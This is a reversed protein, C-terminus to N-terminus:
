NEYDSREFKSIYRKNTDESAMNHNQHFDNRATIQKSSQIRSTLLSILQRFQKSNKLQIRSFQILHDRLQMFLYKIRIERLKEKELFNKLLITFYLNPVKSNLLQYLKNLLQLKYLKIYSRVIDFIFPYCMKIFCIIIVIQILMSAGLYNKQECIQKTLALLISISCIQSSQLDLNNFKQNIFPQNFAALIQYMLLCLGLLSAKLVIETEFNTLIFILIAKKFLKIQEWYFGEMKYENLLYSIHRRIKIKDLRNQNIMLLIFILLPILIGIVILGPIIFYYMWLYHDQTGYIMSVDGHIYNTNSVEIRSVVSSFMKVLGAFNFIYLYLATNSLISLDYKQKVYLLYLSSGIFIINFQMVMLIIMTLIKLYINPIQQILSLYCDLDKSMFSSSDSTQEIFIFSFSFEINFTFIVSFIWFYNLLMKILISEHNQNLKFLIKNFRQGIILQAYLLNSSHISKLSMFISVFTWIGVIFVSILKSLEFQCKLCQQDWQNKFYKGFGKTDYVDCEECLAGIHGESCTYDGVQWGGHCFQPNKFCYEAYDSLKNPRWFGPLLNIMNSTIDFHKDNDFISCKTANYTVSYYGQNSQCIQCGGNIYFEGLQCKLSRATIIYLLNNRAEEIQCNIEIQLNKYTQENPDLNFQLLGFDFSNQQNDYFLTQVNGKRYLEQFTTTIIKNTVECTSNFQDFIIENRSNKYFLRIDKVFLKYTSNHLDFIQLTKIVQNSPIILDNTYIYNGQEIMRYRKLKLMNFNTNNLISPKSPNEMFNLYIALHTPIEVVNNGYEQAINFLLISSVFNDKNLNCDGKLYMGGGVRARNGIIISQIIIFSMSNSHIYLGGGFNEAYNKIIKCFKISIKVKQSFIAVGQSGNNYLFNSNEIQIKSAIETLQLFYLCGNRKILNYYCNLKQFKISKFDQTEIFVMGNYCQQCNNLYLTIDKFFLITQNSISNIYILSNDKNNIQQLSNVGLFLHDQQQNEFSQEYLTCGRILYINSFYNLSYNIDNKYISINRISLQKIKIISKIQLFQTITILNLFYFLQINEIKINNLQLQPINEFQFISNIVIGELIFGDINIICNQFFMLSNKSNGIDTVEQITLDKIRQFYQIWADHNQVIRVKKIIVKNNVAISSSFKVNLIQDKLSLCNLLNIGNLFISNLLKSPQITFISPGMRNFINTFLGNKVRLNLKSNSSEINFCGISKKIQKLNNNAYDIKINIFNIIGNAKTSIDFIFSEIALINKFTCNICSINSVLFQGVGGGNNKTQLVQFVFDNLSEQDLLGNFQFDYYNAWLQQSLLNLNNITFNIMMLIDSRIIMFSNSSNTLTNNEYFLNTIEIVSSSSMFYILNVITSISGSSYSHLFNEFYSINNLKITAKNYSEIILCSILDVLTSQILTNETFQLNMIEIYSNFYELRQQSPSIQIISEDINLIKSIQINTIYINTFGIILLLKTKQILQLCDQSLPIKKNKLSNKFIINSILLKNNESLYFIVFNNNDVILFNSIYIENSNIYFLQIMDDYTSYKSNQKIIFNTLQIQITNTQFTSFILIINSTQFENKIANLNDLYCIQHNKFLIQTVSLFQSFVFLNELIIIQKISIEFSITIIISTELYNFCIDLNNFQIRMQATSNIFYSNVLSSNRIKLNEGQLYGQQPQSNLFSIITSNKLYSQIIIFQQFSLLQDIQSFKFIASQIFTCNLISLSIIKIQGLLLQKQFNFISSNLFESNSITFNILTINGFVETAFLSNINQLTSNQITFNIIKLHVQNKSNNFLLYYDNQIVFGLNSIEIQDFENFQFPFTLIIELYKQSSLHFNVKQLTFIKQKLETKLNLPLIFFCLSEFVKFTFNITLEEIGIQNCYQTNIIDEYNRNFRSFDCSYQSIEFLFKNQCDSNFCYKILHQYSDLKIASDRYPYICKKTYIQNLDNVIFNPQTKQIEQDLRNICAQCLPPCYSCKTSQETIVSKKYYNLPCVKCFTQVQSVCLLCEPDCPEDIKPQPNLFQSYVNLKLQPVFQLVFSQIQNVQNQILQTEVDFEDNQYCNNNEIIYDKQCLVCKIQKEINITCYQCKLILNECNSIQPAISFDDNKSLTCQEKSQLNIFSRLCNEIEPKQLLCLGLTFDFIYDQECLACGQQVNQLWILVLESLNLLSCLDLNQASYEFCYICNKIECLKCQNKFSHYLPPLCILQDNSYNKEIYICNGDILTFGEDCKVCQFSEISIQCIQCSEIFCEYCILQDSQDLDIQQCFHRFYMEALLYEKFIGDSNLLNNNYPFSHTQHIPNLQVGDFYFQVNDVLQFAEELITNPKFIFTNQCIPNQYWNQPNSLCEYCTIQDEKIISPCQYCDGDFEFYGYLCNKSKQLIEEKILQLNSQKYDQCQNEIEITNYPCICVKHEPLYIRKSEQPCSLCDQNTPGDCDKCSLHCSLQIQDIFCNYFELNRVQVILYNPYIDLLNGYKVQFQCNHFQYVDYQVDYKNIEQQNYFTIEVKLKSKLLEVKLYHWLSIQNQILWKNKLLFPDDIFDISSDPFTYNYTTIEIENNLTAFHYFLQFPSLNQNQLQPNQLNASVKMLQYSFKGYSNKNEKIKIWGILIFSDCNQNESIFQHQQQNKFDQDNIKYKQNQNCLCHKFNQEFTEQLYHIFDFDLDLRQISVEQQWIPGPFYSFGENQYVELIQFNRVQLNGGFTLILNLDKLIQKIEKTIQLLVEQKKTVILHFKDLKPWVIVQFFYWINEYEFTDIVLDFRIQQNQNNIFQITKTIKKSEYDLCDFYVINLNQQELDMANHLHFCHSDFIGQYGVQSIASLPNFKSWLGYTLCSNTVYGNDTLQIIKREFQNNPNMETTLFKSVVVVIQAM